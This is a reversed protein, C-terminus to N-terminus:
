GSVTQQTKLDYGGKSVPGGSGDAQQQTYQIFIKTYNLSVNEIPVSDDGSGANNFSSILLDNFKIKYYELKKGGAKRITLVASAIHAGTACKEMLVPTSADAVKVINFDEFSAKGSGLGSGSASSGINQVGWNFSLIEIEGTHASDLSEGKIGDIKLFMDVNTGM